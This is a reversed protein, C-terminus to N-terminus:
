TFSRSVGVYDQAFYDAGYSQNLIIGQSTIQLGEVAGKESSKSVTTIINLLEGPLNKFFVINQDDDVGAGNVDDTVTVQDDPIRGYDLLEVTTDQLVVYDQLFKSSSIQPVDILGTNNVFTRNFVSVLETTDIFGALDGTNKFFVINQDDDAAAGNVDDTATSNDNFYRFYSVAKTLTDSLAAGDATAKTVEFYRTDLLQSLEEPARFFETLITLSDQLNGIDYFFKGTGITNQDAISGSDSYQRIYTNQFSASDLVHSLDGTNKFFVINQDDDAAAGNVDDTGLVNDEISRNYINIIGTTDSLTLVESSAKSLGVAAADTIGTSDQYQRNYFTQRSLQDQIQSTDSVGKSFVNVVSDQLSVTNPLGKGVEVYRSDTVQGTDAFFKFYLEVFKGVIYSLSTKGIYSVDGLVTKASTEALYKTGSSYVDLLTKGSTQVTAIVKNRYETVVVTSSLKEVTATLKGIVTQLITAM